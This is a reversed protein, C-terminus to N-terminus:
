AADCAHLLNVFCFVSAEVNEDCGYAMCFVAASIWIGNPGQTCRPSTSSFFDHRLHPGPDEGWPFQCKYPLCLPVHRSMGATSISLTIRLPCLTTIRRSAVMLVAAQKEDHENVFCWLKPEAAQLVQSRVHLRSHVRVHDCSRTCRRSIQMWLNVLIVAIGWVEHGACADEEGHSM